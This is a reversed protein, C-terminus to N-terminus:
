SIAKMLQAQEIEENAYHQTSIGWPCRELWDQVPNDKVYEILIGIGIALIVLLAIIPIILSGVLASIGAAYAITVTLVVGIVASAFYLFALGRQQEKIANYSKVGDLVAVFLGTIIGVRSGVKELIKGGVSALGQGYRLGLQVRGALAKGLAEATTASVAAFGAYLRYTADAHENELSKGEDEYLKTLIITQIVATIVGFRVDSSIVKRWRGLNMEEVEEVTKLSRAYYDAREQPSLGAPMNKIGEQDALLYWEGTTHGTQMIGRMQQRKMEIAVARRLEKRDASQGSAEYLQKVLYRKFQERTGTIRCIAVPQKSILGIAMIVHRIGYKWDVPKSLLRAIPGIIQTILLAPANQVGDTLRGVSNTYVGFVNDWPLQRPSISVKITEPIAAAIADAIPKHNLVMARLLINKTDTVKGDLWENYLNACAQKDQTSYVCHTVVKTYVAGSEGNNDDFNLNFYNAMIESKMWMVHATALPAIYKADHLKLDNQFKKQWLQREKDRFKVLYKAWGQDSGRDLERPTVNRMDETRKRTSDSLWNGLPNAALQENALEEAANIEDNEARVRIAGELQDIASSAALKRKNEPQNLLLDMNRKMLMALEQAIGAPDPLTVILGTGPRMVQFEKTLQEAQGYRVNFQITNWDFSWRAEKPPMSYEAVVATLQTIPRGQPSKDSALAAKVDIAVMHRKRQAPDEHAKRVADTWCVDSFGLWVTTAQKPDQVTICSALARHAEDPCSFPKTPVVPIVGPTNMLKFLYGDATIFYEEWRKRAEDYVNLYGSRLLRKTYYAASSALEIPLAPSVPAGSGAAAVADRVLLLPLGRKDCFECKKPDTM